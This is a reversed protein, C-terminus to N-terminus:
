NSVSVHHSGAMYLDLGLPDSIKEQSETLKEYRRPVLYTCVHLCFDM